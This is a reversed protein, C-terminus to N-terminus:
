KDFQDEQLYYFDDQEDHNISKIYFFYINLTERVENSFTPSMTEYYSVLYKRLYQIDVAFKFVGCGDVVPIMRQRVGLLGNLDKIPSDIHLYDFKTKMVEKATLKLTDAKVTPLYPLDKMDLLIDFISRGLSNSIAYSVIVGLLVPVLYTLEGNIEFVIIACSLTRTVSAAMSTAGVIAYTTEHIGPGFILRLVYGFFRGFVAGLMLSPTFVGAPIPLSLALVTMLFKLFFFLILNILISPSNWYMKEQDALPSQSFMEHLINKEPVRMFDIPFTVVAVFIAIITTLYWRNSIFPLKFKARIFILNNIIHIFLSGIM